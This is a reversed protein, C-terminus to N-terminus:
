DIEPPGPRPPVGAWIASFLESVVDYLLGPARLYLCPSNRGHDHRSYFTLYAAQDTLVIRHSHPLDFLRLEMNPRKRGVEDLYDINAGIQDRLLHETVGPDTTSLAEARQRLWHGSCTDPDPLLLQVPVPRAAGAPWLPAFVDRTLTNGRGTLVKVRRARALDEALDAEALRQERYVRHVGTGTLRALLSIAWWRPRSARAWGLACVLATALLSSLVGLGFATM